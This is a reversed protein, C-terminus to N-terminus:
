RVPDGPSTWVAGYAAVIGSPSGGLEITEISETVPDLRSVSGGTSSAVWVIGNDGVALASPRAGVRTSDLIAGAPTLRWLRPQSSGAFWVAAAGVAISITPSDEVNPVPATALETGTGPDLRTVGTRGGLWVSGVGVALSLAEFGEAIPAAVDTAPDIRTVEGRARELAWVSGEGIALVVTEREVSLSGVEAEHLTITRRLDGLAPGIELVVLTRGQNVAVWVSGEGVALGVPIGGSAPIGRTPPVIEMTDPDIRTLTNGEPDVVWIYGPGAAMLSSTFGLPIDAVLENTAPDVVGISMPGIRSLGDDGRLAVALTVAAALAVAAGAALFARLRGLRSSRWPLPSAPTSTGHVGLAARASAILEGSAQQREAPRKALARALVRDIERGLEPRSAALAPPPEHVHAWLTAVDSERAFPQEGTLCEYLVCGLAYVDARADVAEGRIQESSVYAVTGVLEGTGTLGSISASQKTLGFDSLYCHERGAREAILINGPKVDRHILGREHAADLADAVQDLLGLARGPELSGERALLQRLDYGEVYRMALYLQGATEGAAYIPVINPHDLSAALQSERLFRERFRENEALEPALLKLAVKRGLRLDVARYVAGMGGRGLLDELRFGAIESGRRPDSGVSL